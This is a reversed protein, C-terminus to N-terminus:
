ESMLCFVVSSFLMCTLSCFYVSVFPLFSSRFSHTHSCTHMNKPLCQCVALGQLKELPALADISAACVCFGVSLCMLSSSSSKLQLQSSFYVTQHKVSTKSKYVLFVEVNLGRAAKLFVIRIFDGDQLKHEQLTKFCQWKKHMISSHELLFVSYLFGHM